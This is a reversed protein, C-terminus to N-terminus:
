FACLNLSCLIYVQLFSRQKVATKGNNRRLHEMSVGDISWRHDMTEISSRHLVSPSDISYRLLKLPPFKSKWVIEKANNIKKTVKATLVWV